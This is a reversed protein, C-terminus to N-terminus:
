VWQVKERDGGYCEQDNSESFLAHFTSRSAMTERWNWNWKWNWKWQRRGVTQEELESEASLLVSWSQFRLFEKGKRHVKRCGDVQHTRRASGTGCRRPMVDVDHEMPVALGVVIRCSAVKVSLEWMMLPVFQALEESHKLDKELRKM